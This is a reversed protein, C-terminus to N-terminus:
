MEGSEPLYEFYINTPNIILYERYCFSARFILVSESAAVLEAIVPPYDDRGFRDETFVCKLFIPTGNKAMGFVKGILAQRESPTSYTIEELDTLSSLVFSIDSPGYEYSTQNCHAIISLMYPDKNSYIM